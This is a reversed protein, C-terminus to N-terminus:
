EKSNFIKYTSTCKELLASANMCQCNWMHLFFLTNQLDIRQFIEASFELRHSLNCPTWNMRVGYWTMWMNFIKIFLCPLWSVLCTVMLVLQPQWWLIFHQGGSKQLPLKLNRCSGICFFPPWVLSVTHPWRPLQGRKAVM